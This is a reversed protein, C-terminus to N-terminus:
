RFFPTIPEPEEGGGGPSLPRWGTGSIYVIALLFLDAPPLRNRFIAIRLPVKARSLAASKARSDIETPRSLSSPARKAVERSGLAAGNCIKESKHERQLQVSRLSLRPRISRHERRFAGNKNRSKDSTQRTMQLNPQCLTAALNKRQTTSRNIFPIDIYLM